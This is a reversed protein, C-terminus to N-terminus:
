CISFSMEEMKREPVFDFAPVVAFGKFAHHEGRPSLIIPETGHFGSVKHHQRLSICLGLGLYGNDTSFVVACDAVEAQYRLWVDIEKDFRRALLYARTPLYSQRCLLNFLFSSVPTHASPLELDLSDTPWGAAADANGERWAQALMEAKTNPPEDATVATSEDCREKASTQRLMFVPTPEAYGTNAHEWLAKAITFVIDAGAREEEYMFREHLHKSYPGVNQHAVVCVHGLVLADTLLLRADGSLRYRNRASNKTQFPKRQVSRHELEVDLNDLTRESTYTRSFFDVAWTPADMMHAYAQPYSKLDYRPDGSNSMGLTMKSPHLVCQLIDLTGTTAIINYTAKVSVDAISQSYDPRIGGSNHVMGLLGFITDKPETCQQNHTLAIARQLSLSGDNRYRRRLEDLFRFNALMETPIAENQEHLDLLLYTLDMWSMTCPGFVVLPDPGALVCEQVTWVRTFWRPRSSRIAAMLTRITHDERIAAERIDEPVNAKLLRTDVDPENSEGLWIVVCLAQSYIRGMISVQQGRESSSSQDVCLADIWLCRERDTYRLRRLAAAANDTVHCDYGNVQVTLRRSASGWTYSLAEYDPQEDLYQVALTCCIPDELSPAPLLQLIRIAKSPERLPLTSYLEM